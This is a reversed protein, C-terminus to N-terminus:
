ARDHHPSLQADLPLSPQQEHKRPFWRDLIHVGGRAALEEYAKRVEAPRLGLRESVQKVDYVVPAAEDALQGQALQQAQSSVVDM